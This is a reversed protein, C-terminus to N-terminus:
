GPTVFVRIHVDEKLSKLQRRTELALKSRRQSAGIISEILVAFEFGSPLGYYRAKGKAGSDFTLAPIREIGQEAADERSKFFDVVNLDIKPSLASVEEILQQTQGCTRCERGPVFLGIDPQTYLTLSVDATLELEFRQQVAERDNDRLLQM